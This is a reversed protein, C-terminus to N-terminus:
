GRVLRALAPHHPTGYSKVNKKQHRALRRRRIQRTEQSSQNGQSDESQLASRRPAQRPETRGRSLAAQASTELSRKAPRAAFFAPHPKGRNRERKEKSPDYLRGGERSLDFHFYRFAFHCIFIYFPNFQRLM